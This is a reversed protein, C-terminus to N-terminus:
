WGPHLLQLFCLLNRFFQDQCRYTMCLHLHDGVSCPLGGPVTQRHREWGENSLGIKKCSHRKKECCQKGAPPPKHQATRQRRGEAWETEKTATWSGALERHLSFSAASVVQLHLDANETWATTTNEGLTPMLLLCCAGAGLQTLPPTGVWPAHFSHSVFEKGGADPTM